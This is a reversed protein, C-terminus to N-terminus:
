ERFLPDGIKWALVKEKAPEHLLVSSTITDAELKGSDRLVDYVTWYEQTKLADLPHQPPQNQGALLLPLLIAFFSLTFIRRSFSIMLGGFKSLERTWCRDPFTLWALRYARCNWTFFIAFLLKLQGRNLPAFTLETRQRFAFFFSSNPSDALSM